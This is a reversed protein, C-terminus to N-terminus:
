YTQKKLDNYIKVMEDHYEEEFERNLRKKFTVDDIHMGKFLKKIRVDFESDLADTYVDLNIVTGKEVDFYLQAEGFSYYDHVIVTYKSITNYLFKYSHYHELLEDPIEPVAMETIEGYTERVAAILANQLDEM